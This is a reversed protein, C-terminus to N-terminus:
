KKKMAEIRREEEAEEAERELRRQERRQEKQALMMAERNANHNSQITYLSILIASAATIHVWGIKRWRNPIRSLISSM